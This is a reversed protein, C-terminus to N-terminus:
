SCCVSGSDPEVLPLTGALLGGSIGSALGRGVRVLEVAVPAPAACCSEGSASTDPDSNCVGTEPLELQVDAAAALDGDLFAVVSRAQEFGTAMLFTPARGYSKMGVIYFGPEPHLLEAQGHPPVTGCSHKNPDILPALARTSGLIPDMDLRLEAAISHDPRFGTAAVIRNATVTRGDLATVLVGDGDAQVADINFASLLQIRGNDILAKLRSGLAGRAPLADAEGGGFTRAGVTGRVVWTVTTGPETEALTALNILTNTASHGAGAVLTHRGAFRDREAGLVDPLASEIFASAENEGLAPLGDGGLVNPTRWTGSADIVARALIRVEGNETATRIRFPAQDRRVSRVKDIGRRGIATVRHGFRLHPAVAPHEALPTLYEEIIQGGTPLAEHDPHRWGEAELLRRAAPDIDYRWPSFVKVHGWDRIAAGAENGAELILFPIGREALHAAAALGVPGAGIVVVPLEETTTTSSTTTARM